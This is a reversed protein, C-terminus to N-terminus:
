RGLRAWDGFERWAASARFGAEAVAHRLALSWRPEWAQAQALGWVACGLLLAGALVILVVATTSLGGGGGSHAPSTLAILPQLSM